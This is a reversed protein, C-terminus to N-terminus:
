RNNDYLLVYRSDFGSWVPDTRGQLDVFSLWGKLGLYRATNIDTRDRCLRGNAISTGNYVVDIFLGADTTMLRMDAAQNDLLCSFSANAADPLPIQTVTM